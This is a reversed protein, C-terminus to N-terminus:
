RDHNEEEEEKKADRIFFRKKSIAQTHRQRTMLKGDWKWNTEKSKINRAQNEVELILIRKKV